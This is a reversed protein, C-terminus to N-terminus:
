LGLASAISKWLAQSFDNYVVVLPQGLSRSFELLFATGAISLVVYMIIKLLWATSRLDELACDKAVREIYKLTQKLEEFHSMVHDLMEQQKSMTMAALGPFTRKARVANVLEKAHQVHSEIRNRFAPYTGKMNVYRDLDEAAREYEGRVISTLVVHRLSDIKGLSQNALRSQISAQIQHAKEKELQEYNVAKSTM